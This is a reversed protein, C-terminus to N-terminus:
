KAIQVQQKAIELDGAKFSLETVFKILLQVTPNKINMKYMKAKGVMRTNVVLELKELEEWFTHLTTWGVNSNKCIDSLSYDFMYSELLFDLVRAKPSNGVLDIFVSENKM